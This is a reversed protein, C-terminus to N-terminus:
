AAGIKKSCVPWAGWGQSALVRNAVAIQQERSANEPSGQGGNAAWTSPTFQLGGSFGNGTNANWNGSSECQALQDWTSDPAAANATGAFALPTGALIAGAAVIRALNRVGLIRSRSTGRSPTM